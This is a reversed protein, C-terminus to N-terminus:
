EPDKDLSGAASNGAQTSLHSLLGQKCSGHGMLGPKSELLRAQNVSKLGLWAATEGLAHHVRGFCGCGWPPLDGPGYGWLRDRRVGAFGGVGVDCGLRLDTGSGPGDGYGWRFGGLGGRVVAGKGDAGAGDVDLGEVGSGELFEMILAGVEDVVELLLAVACGAEVVAVGGDFGAEGSGGDLGGRFGFLGRALGGEEACLDGVGGLLFLEGKKAEALDVELQLVSVAPDHHDM